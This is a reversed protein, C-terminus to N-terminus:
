WLICPFQSVACPNTEVVSPMIYAITLDEPWAEIKQKSSVWFIDMYGQSLWNVTLKKKADILSPTVWARYANSLWIWLISGFVM